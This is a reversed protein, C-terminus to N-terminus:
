KPYFTNKFNLLKFIPTQLLTGQKTTSEKLRTLRNDIALIDKGYEILTNRIIEQQAKEYTSFVKIRTAHFNSFEALETHKTFPVFIYKDNRICIKRITNGRTVTYGIITDTSNMPISEPTPAEPITVFKSIAVLTELYAIHAKEKKSMTM